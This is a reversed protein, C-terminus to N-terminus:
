VRSTLRRVKRLGRRFFSTSYHTSQSYNDATYNRLIYSPHQLPFELEQTPISMVGGWTNTGDKGFGFNRVLNTKPLITLGSNAWCSYTWRYAWSEIKGDYVSQFIKEWYRSSKRHGEFYFQIFREKKLIPWLSMSDDYYNWARKWTAWGWCHFYRSFYYSYPLVNKQKQFNDGSIAMIRRDDIYKVLLEDCFRFFSQNPICDDELFIAMENKEFVWNIGSIIRKRLGLNEQSYNRIVECDWDIQDCLLRAQDCKEIDNNSNERPGDAIIYLIKLDNKRLEDLVKKTSEPRNFIFLVVPTQIRYDPM